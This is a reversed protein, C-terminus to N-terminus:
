NSTHVVNKYPSIRKPAVAQNQQHHADKWLKNIPSLAKHIWAIKMPRSSYTWYTKWWEGDWEMLLWDKHTYKVFNQSVSFARWTAMTLHMMFYSFPYDRCPGVKKWCDVLQRNHHLNHQRCPHNCIMTQTFTNTSLPPNSAEPIQLWVHIAVLVISTSYM